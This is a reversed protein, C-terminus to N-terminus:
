AQKGIEFATRSCCFCSAHPNTPPAGNFRGVHFCRWSQLGQHILPQDVSHNALEHAAFFGHHVHHAAPVFGTAGFNVFLGSLAAKPLRHIVGFVALDFIRARGPGHGFAAFKTPLFLFRGPLTGLDIRKVSQGSCAHAHRLRVVKKVTHQQHLQHGVRVTVCRWSQIVHGERGLLSHLVM